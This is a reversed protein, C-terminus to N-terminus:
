PRSGFPTWGDPRDSVPNAEAWSQRDVVSSEVLRDLAKRQLTFEGEIVDAFQEIIDAPRVVLEFASHITSGDPTKAANGFAVTWRDDNFHHDVDAPTREISLLQVEHGVAVARMIATNVGDVIAQRQEIRQGIMAVEDIIAEVLERIVPNHDGVMRGEVVDVEIRLPHTIGELRIAMECWVANCPHGTGSRYIRFAGDDVLIGTLGRADLEAAVATQVLTMADIINIQM